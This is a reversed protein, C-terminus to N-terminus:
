RGIRRLIGRIRRRVAEGVAYSLANLDLETRPGAVCQRVRRNLLRRHNTFMRIDKSHVHLALVPAAGSGGHVLLGGASDLSFSAARCDIAHHPLDVFLRRRGRANRADLGLLYQGWTAADIVGGVQQVTASMRTRLPEGINAHFFSSADPASPLIAVQEMSQAAGLLGMDSMTAGSQPVDAVHLIEALAAADRIVLVSAAGESANVLPYAIGAGLSCLRGLDLHPSLWVDAEIHVISSSPNVEAFAAVAWLRMMTNIWFGGRFQPDLGVITEMRQRLDGEADFRWTHAGARAARAAVLDSDHAMWVEIAPFTRRLYRINALAYKPISDGLYVLLIRPDASM